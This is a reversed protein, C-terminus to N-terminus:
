PSARVGRGLTSERPRLDFDAVVELGPGNVAGAGAALREVLLEVATRAIQPLGPEVTTLSPRAFRGEEIDDFGAVAVADPVAVDREYLVRMAGLALVDNLAFVADFPEGGDLLGRMAEAGTSRTWAQAPGTL